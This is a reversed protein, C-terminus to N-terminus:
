LSNEHLAKKLMEAGIRSENLSIVDKPSYVGMKSAIKNDMYRKPSIMLQAFAAVSQRWVLRVLKESTLWQNSLSRYEMGYPKPRFAGASGYIKRRLSNSDWGLSPIGLFTDLQIALASCELIHERSIVFNGWGFHVHGGASRMCKDALVPSPNFTSTYGSYDPDCGLELAEPPQEAIVEKSFVAIPSFDLTYGRPLMGTLESIVISIRRVFDDENHCPDVGFELAMGDVQVMGENVKLPDVKTGAILGHASVLSGSQDRVFVEPDCGLSLEIKNNIKVM